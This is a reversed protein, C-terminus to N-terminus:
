VFGVAPSFGERNCSWDRYQRLRASRRIHPRAGVAWVRVSGRRANELLTELIPKGSKPLDLSLLHLVAQCDALARHNDFFFGLKGLIYDLKRSAVGEESWPIQALSCAWAKNIFLPFRRELFRRDFGANHAIVLSSSAVLKNIVTEGLAQGQVQEDTIGTLEVVDAPIPDCPDEFGAYGPLADFLVGKPSFCFPLIALEIIKHQDPDLGTTEVDVIM